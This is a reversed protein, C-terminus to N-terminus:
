LGQNSGSLVYDYQVRRFKLKIEPRDLCDGIDQEVIMFEFGEGSAYAETTLLALLRGV